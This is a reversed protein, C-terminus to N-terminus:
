FSSKQRKQISDNPFKEIGLQHTIKAEDKVLHLEIDLLGEFEEQAREINKRMNRCRSSKSGYFVISYGDDNLTKPAAILKKAQDYIHAMLINTSNDQSSDSFKGYWTSVLKKLQIALLTTEKSVPAKSDFSTQIDGFCSAFAVSGKALAIIKEQLDGADLDEGVDSAQKEILQGTKTQLQQMEKYQKRLKSSHKELNNRLYDEIWSSSLKYLQLVDKYEELTM